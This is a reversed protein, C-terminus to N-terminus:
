KLLKQPLNDREQEWSQEMSTVQSDPLIMAAVKALPPIHGIVPSRTRLASATRFVKLRMCEHPMYSKEPCIAKWTLPMLNHHLWAVSVLKVQFWLYLWGKARIEWTPKGAFDPTDPAISSTIGLTMPTIHQDGGSSLTPFLTRPISKQWALVLSKANRYKSKQYHCHDQHSLDNKNGM